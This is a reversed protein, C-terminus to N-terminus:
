LAQVESTVFPQQKMWPLNLTQLLDQWPRDRQIDAPNLANPNLFYQTATYDIADYWIQHERYVQDPTSQQLQAQLQPNIPVRQIWGDIALDPEPTRDPRCDLNLRWRYNQNLAIAYKAENPLTVKIIGSQDALQITAHYITERETGNLLLFEVHSLQDAKYPIYFWFTPHANVTFDKGNNAVIATLPKATAPCAAEPRTTGPTPQGTPTGTNPPKPLLQAIAPLTFTLSCTLSCTLSSILSIRYTLSSSYKSSMSNSSM